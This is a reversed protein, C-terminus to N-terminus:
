HCLLPLLATLCHKCLKTDHLRFDDGEKQYTHFRKRCWSCRLKVNLSFSMDFEAETVREIDKLQLVGADPIIIDIKQYEDVLTKILTHIGSLTGGDAQVPIGVEAGVEKLFAEAAKAEGGYSAVM